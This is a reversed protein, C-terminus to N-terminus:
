QPLVPKEPGIIGSCKMPAVRKMRQALHIVTHLHDQGPDPPPPVPRILSGAIRDGMPNSLETYDGPEIKYSAAVTGDKPNVVYANVSNDGREVVVVDDPGGLPQDKTYDVLPPLEKQCTTGDVWGPQKVTSISGKCAVLTLAGLSALALLHPKM